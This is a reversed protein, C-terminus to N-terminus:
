NPEAQGAGRREEPGARRPIAPPQFLAAGLLVPLVLLPLLFDSSAIPLDTWLWNLTQRVESQSFQLVPFCRNAIYPLDVTINLVLCFSVIKM